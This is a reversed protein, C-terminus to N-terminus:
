FSISIELPARVMRYVCFVVICSIPVAFVAKMWGFVFILFPVALWVPAARCSYKLFLNAADSFKKM